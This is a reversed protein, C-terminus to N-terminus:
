FPPFTFFSAYMKIYSLYKFCQILSEIIQVDEKPEVRHIKVVLLRRNIGEELGELQHTRSSFGFRLPPEAFNRSNKYLILLYLSFPHYSM